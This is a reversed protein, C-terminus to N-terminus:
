PVTINGNNLFLGAGTALREIIPRQPDFDLVDNVRCYGLDVISNVGDVTVRTTSPVGLTGLFYRNGAVVGTFPAVGRRYYLGDSGKAVLWSLQDATDTSHGGSNIATAETVTTAGTSRCIRSTAGGTLGPIVVSSILGQPLSTLNIGGIAPLGGSVLLPINGTALGFIIGLNSLAHAIQTSNLEALANEAFLFSEAAVGCYANRTGGGWAVPTGSGNTSYTVVRASITDTTPGGGGYTLTGYSFEYIGSTADQLELPVGTAGNAYRDRFNLKGAGAAVNLTVTGGTTASNSGQWIGNSPRYVVPFAM